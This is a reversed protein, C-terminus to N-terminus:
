WCRLCARYDKDQAEGRTMQTALAPNMNGCDDISHYITGGTGAIWVPRLRMFGEDTLLSVVGGYFSVDVGLSEAVFRLPVFTRGDVIMPAVDLYETFSSGTASDVTIVAYRGIELEFLVDQPNVYTVTRREGDWEVDIDLMEAIARLPVMTRGELIFPQVDFEATVGDVEIRVENAYLTPAFLAM